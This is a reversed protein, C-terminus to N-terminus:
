SCFMVNAHHLALPSWGWDKRVRMMKAKQGCSPAGVALDFFCYFDLLFIRFVLFCSTEFVRFRRFDIVLKCLNAFSCQYFPCYFVRKEVNEDIFVMEIKHEFFTNKANCIAPPRMGLFLISVQKKNSFWFLVICYSSNACVCRSSFVVRPGPPGSFPRKPVNAFCQLGRAVLVYLGVKYTFCRRKEIGM